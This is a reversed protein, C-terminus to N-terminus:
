ACKASAYIATLKSFFKHRVRRGTFGNDTDFEELRKPPKEIKGPGTPVAGGEWVLKPKFSSDATAQAQKLAAPVKKLIECIAVVGLDVPGGEEFAELALPPQGQQTFNESLDLDV